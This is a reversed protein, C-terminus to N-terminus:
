NSFTEGTRESRPVFVKVGGLGKLSFPRKVKIEPCINSFNFKLYNNRILRNLNNHILLRSFETQHLDHKAPLTVVKRSREM